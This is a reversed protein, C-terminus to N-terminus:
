CSVLSLFRVLRLARYYMNNTCFLDESIKKAKYYLCCNMFIFLQQATGFCHFRRGVIFFGRFWKIHVRGPLTNHKSVNRCPHLNLLLKWNNAIYNKSLGKVRPSQPTFGRSISLYIFCPLLVRVQRRGRGSGSDISAISVVCLAEIGEFAQSLNFFYIHIACLCVQMNSSQHM